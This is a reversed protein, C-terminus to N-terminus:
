FHIYHVELQGSPKLELIEEKGNDAKIKFQYEIGEDVMMQVEGSESKTLSLIEPKEMSLDFLTSKPLVKLIIKVQKPENIETNPTKEQKTEPLRSLLESGIKETSDDTKPKSLYTLLSASSFMMLVIVTVIIIRSLSKNGKSEAM